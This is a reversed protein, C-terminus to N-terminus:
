PDKKIVKKIEPINQNTQEKNGSERRIKDDDQPKKPQQGQKTQSRYASNKVKTRGM